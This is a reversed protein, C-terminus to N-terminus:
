GSVIQWVRTRLILHQILLSQDRQSSCSQRLLRISGFPERDRYEKLIRGLFVMRVIYFCRFTEPDGTHESSGHPASPIPIVSTPSSQRTAYYNLLMPQLSNRPTNVLCGRRLNDNSFFFSFLFLFSFFDVGWKLEAADRRTGGLIPKKM